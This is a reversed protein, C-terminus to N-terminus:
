TRRGRAGALVADVADAVLVDGAPEGLVLRRYFLFGGVLQVLLDADLSDDLDGRAMAREIVTIGTQRRATSFESYVAALEPDSQAADILTVLIRSWAPDRLKTALGDAVAILDARVDGTDPVEAPEM